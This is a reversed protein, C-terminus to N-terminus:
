FVFDGPLGYRKKRVNNIWDLCNAKSTKGLNYGGNYRGPVSIIDIGQERLSIIIGQPVGLQKLTVNEGQNSNVLKTIVQAEMMKKQANTMRRGGEIIIKKLPIDSFRKVYAYLQQINGDFFKDAIAQNSEDNIRMKLIEASVLLFQLKKYPLNFYKICVRGLHRSCYGLMSAAYERTRNEQACELIKKEIRM